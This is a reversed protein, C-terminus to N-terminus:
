PRADRKDLCIVGGLLTYLVAGVLAGILIMGAAVTCVAETIPNKMTKKASVYIGDGFTYLAGPGLM